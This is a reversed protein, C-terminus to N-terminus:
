PSLPPIGHPWAALMQASVVADFRAGLGTASRGAHAAAAHAASGMMAAVAPLVCPSATPAAWAGAEHRSHRIVAQTYGSAFLQETWDDGYAAALQYYEERNVSVVDALALVDRLSAWFEPAAAPAPRFSGGAVYLFALGPLARVEAMLRAVVPLTAKNLGGIGLAFRAGPSATLAKQLGVLGVSALSEDLWRGDPVALMVKKSAALHELSLTGAVEDAHRAYRVVPLAADPLDDMLRAPVNGLFYSRVPVHTEVAWHAATLASILPSGGTNWRIERADARLRALLEDLRERTVFEERDEAPFAVGLPEFDVPQLQVRYDVTGQFGWFLLSEERHPM